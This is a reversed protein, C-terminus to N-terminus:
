WLCVHLPTAWTDCRGLCVQESLGSLVPRMVHEVSLCGQAGQPTPSAAVGHYADSSILLVSLLVVVVPTANSCRPAHRLMRGLQGCMMPGLRRQLVNIGHQDATRAFV